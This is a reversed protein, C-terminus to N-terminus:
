RRLRRMFGPRWLPGGGFDELRTGSDAQLGLKGGNQYAALLGNGHVAGAWRWGGGIDVWLSLVPSRRQIGFKLGNAVDAWLRLAQADVGGTNGSSGLAIYDRVTRVNTLVWAAALGDVTAVNASGSGNFHVGAAGATAITVYVEGDADQYVEDIWWSGGSGTATSGAAQNSVVRLFRLTASSPHVNETTSWNGDSTGIPEEDARNFDDIVPEIPFEGDYLVETVAVFLQTWDRDATDSTVDVTDSTLTAIRWGGRLHINDTDAGGTTGAGAIQTYDTDWTYADTDPGEVTLAHLLLYERSELSSLSISSPDSARGTSTTPGRDTVAWRLDPDTSFEHLSIAAKGGGTVARWTVTISDATTLDFDLRSIFIAGMSYINSGGDTRAAITAYLNGADDHCAMRENLETSAPNGPDHTSDAAFWVVLLQGAPIDSTPSISLTLDQNSSAVSTRTATGRGGESTFSM